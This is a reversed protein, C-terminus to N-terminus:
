SRPLLVRLAGPKVSFRLPSALERVEGDIAAQVRPQNLAIAIESACFSEFQEYDELTGVLARMPLSLAALRGARPAVYLSLQHDSINHRRALAFGSLVYSGNGVVLFPSRRTLARGDVTLSATLTPLRWWTRATAVIAAIPRSRGREELASREDVMRPYSGLSVNNLFVQDNVIGVDVSEPVGTRLLAVAADLELPIGADRAFHNLTGTPIIALTKNARAVAAGVASVTGDGGAAVIVDHSDAVRDIWEDVPGDPTDLIEATLGVGRLAEELATTEIASGSHPNRIVAIRDGRHPSSGTV